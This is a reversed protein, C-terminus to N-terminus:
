HEVMRRVLEDVFTAAKAPSRGTLPFRVATCTKSTRRPMRPTEGKLDELLDILRSRNESLRRAPAYTKVCLSRQNAKEGVFELYDGSTGDDRNVVWLTLLPGSILSSRTWSAPDDRHRLVESFFAWHGLATPARGWSVDVGDRVARVARQQDEDEWALHDAYSLLERDGGAFDRVVDAFAGPGVFRWPWAYGTIADMERDDVALATYGVALLIGHCSEGVTERLQDVSWASDTKVEVGLWGHTEGSTIEAALDVTRRSGARLKAEARPNEVHNIHEDDTLSRAVGVAAPSGLLHRLAGTHVAEHQFGIAEVWDM